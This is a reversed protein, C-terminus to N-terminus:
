ARLAYKRVPFAARAKQQRLSKANKEEATLARRMARTKKVRLDLPQYKADAYFKRLERAQTQNMVTLVRAIDKRTRRIQSLKANAGGTAQSVRLGALETKFEKLKALLADKKMGRLEAVKVKAM